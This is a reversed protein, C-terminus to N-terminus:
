AELTNIAQALRSKQRAAYNKHKVNNVVAKDLKQNAVNYAAKAGEVDKNNVAVLVNKIATKLETRQANHALRAQENTLARKQNSKINAMIVEM